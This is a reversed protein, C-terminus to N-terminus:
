WCECINLAFYTLIGMDQFVSHSPDTAVLISAGSSSVTRGEGLPTWVYSDFHSASRKFYVGNQVLMSPSEFARTCEIRLSSRGSRLVYVAVCLHEAPTHPFRVQAPRHRDQHSKQGWGLVGLLRVDQAARDLDFSAAVTVENVVPDLQGRGARPTPM